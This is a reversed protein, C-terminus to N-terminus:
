DSVELSCFGRRDQISNSRAASVETIEDAQVELEELNIAGTMTEFKM